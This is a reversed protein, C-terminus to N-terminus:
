NLKKNRIHRRADRATKKDLNDLLSSEIDIELQNAICTAVFIIDALEDALAGKIDDESPSEKFSQEGYQRAILRSLEGVEEVLLLGNTKINFYRVGYQRIWQDVAQQWDKILM